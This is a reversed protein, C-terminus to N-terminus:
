LLFDSGVIGDSRIKSEAILDGEEKLGVGSLGRQRMLGLLAALRQAAAAPPTGTAHINSLCNREADTSGIRPLWTVYAGLSVPVTLGPREGILVAVAGAGLAAAVADGLAVRAQRAVVFPALRWGGLRPLLGALLAPAAQVARASLGDAIVVVLDYSARHAALHAAAAADLRRGLDPRRLYTARDPAASAVTLVQDLPAGFRAGLSALAGALAETDLEDGVADRARAHDARFALLAKTAVASGSRALGIRAPTHARLGAWPDAASPATAPPKM